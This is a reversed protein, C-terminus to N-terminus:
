RKPTPPALPPNPSTYRPELGSSSAWAAALVNNRVDPDATDSRTVAYISCGTRLPGSLGLHVLRYENKPIVPWTCQAGATNTSCQGGGDATASVIKLAADKPTFDINLVVNQAEDRGYNQSSSVIEDAGKGRAVSIGGVSLDACKAYPTRARKFEVSSSTTKQSVVIFMQDGCDTSDLANLASASVGEPHEPLLIITQPLGGLDAENITAQGSDTATSLVLQALKGSSFETLWINGDVGTTLGAPLLNTNQTPLPFLTVTGDRKMRALNNAYTFWINRDAALLMEAGLANSQSVSPLSFTTIQGAPTVRLIAYASGSVSVWMNGDAGLHMALEIAGSPLSITSITGDATNIRGLGSAFGTSSQDFYDFWVEGNPGAATAGPRRNPPLSFETIVGDPTIRGVKPQRDEAFWINGDPGLSLGSALPNATPISFTTYAGSPTLRGIANGGDSVWINGDSGLAASRPTGPFDFPDVTLNAITGARVAAAAITLLLALRFQRTM